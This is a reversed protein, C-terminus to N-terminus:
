VDENVFKLSAYNWNGKRDLDGISPKNGEHYLFRGKKKFLL